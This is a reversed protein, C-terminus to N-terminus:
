KVLLLRCVLHRLSQLESTHEESRSSKDYLQSALADMEARNHPNLWISVDIIKTPDESGLNKATLAYRPTNHAVALRTAAFAPLALSAFLALAVVSLWVARLNRGIAGPNFATQKNSTAM